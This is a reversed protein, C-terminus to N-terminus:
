QPHCVRKPKGNVIGDVCIVSQEPNPATPPAKREINKGLSTGKLSQYVLEEAFNSISKGLIKGASHLASVTEEILKAALENGTDQNMYKVVNSPDVLISNFLQEGKAKQATPLVEILKIIYPNVSTRGRAQAVKLFAYGKTLNKDVYRGLIFMYGIAEYGKGCRQLASDVYFYIAKKDNKEVGNGNFYLDGMDAMALPDGLEILQNLLQATTSYDGSNFSNKIDDSVEPKIYNECAM